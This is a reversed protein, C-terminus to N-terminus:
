PYYILAVDEKVPQIWVKGIKYTYTLSDNAFMSNHFDNIEKIGNYLYGGGNIFSAMSDFQQNIVNIDRNIMAKERDNIMSIIKLSDDSSFSAAKQNTKSVCATFFCLFLSLIRLTMPHM